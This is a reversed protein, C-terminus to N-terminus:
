SETFGYVAFSLFLTFAWPASQSHHDTESAIHKSGCTGEIATCHPSFKEFGEM